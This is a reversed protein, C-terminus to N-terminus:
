CVAAWWVEQFMKVTELQFNNFLQLLTEHVIRVYLSMADTLLNQPEASFQM